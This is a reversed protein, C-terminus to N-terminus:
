TDDYEDCYNSKYFLAFVAFWVKLTDVQLLIVDAVGKFFIACTGAVQRAHTKFDHAFVDLLRM